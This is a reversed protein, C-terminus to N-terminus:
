WEAEPPLQEYELALGMAIALPLIVLVIQFSVVIWRPQRALRPILTSLLALPALGILWFAALPVQSESQYRVNLMFAPLFGVAAPIAGRADSKAAGAVAALGGFAFAMVLAINMFLQSHAYIAVGGAAFFTAAIGFASANEWAIWSLFMVAALAPRIWAHEEAWPAPIVWNSTIFVAIARPLWLLLPHVRGRHFPYALVRSALGAILLVFAVRPLDHWAYRENPKWSILRHANEWLLRKDGEEEFPGFQFNAWAFGFAVAVAAGLMALRRSVALFSAYALTAGGAAPLAYEQLTSLILPTPPLPPLPM